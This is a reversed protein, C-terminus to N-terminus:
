ELESRQTAPEHISRLKGFGSRILSAVSKSLHALFGVDDSSSPERVSAHFSNATKASFEPMGTPSVCAPRADLGISLKKQLYQCGPVGPAPLIASSASTTRQTPVSEM